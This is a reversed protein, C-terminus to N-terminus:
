ARKYARPDDVTAEVTDDNIIRFEQKGIKFRTGSYSRFIVYDEEKCWPGGPFKGKDAYAEPGMRVVLGVISATQELAKLDDPIFVGGETKDEVSPMAVLLKYGTPKPLKDLVEQDVVRDAAYM